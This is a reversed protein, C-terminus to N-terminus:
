IVFGKIRQFYESKEININKIKKAPNGGYLCAVENCKNAILVSSAALVSFDPLQSGPLLICNTGVFCYDGIKIPIAHQRNLELDISHSLVQSKFGAFTTFKGIEFTETCDILHRNTVASHEGIILTPTRNHIHSFHYKNEKPFGTIWNLNGLSSHSEMSVHDLGKFVNLHGIKAHEAMTLNSVRLLSFGIYASPDIKFGFFQRLIIKKLSQPLIAIILLSLTKLM